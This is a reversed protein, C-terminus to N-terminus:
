VKYLQAFHDSVMGDARGASQYKEALTTKIKDKKTQITASLEEITKTLLPEELLTNARELYRLGLESELPELKLNEKKLNKKYLELEAQRATDSSYLDLLNAPLHMMEITGMAHDLTRGSTHTLDVSHDHYFESINHRAAELELCAKEGPHFNFDGAMICPVDGIDSLIKFAVKAPFRNSTSPAHVNYVIGINPFFLGIVPRLKSVADDDEYFRVDIHNKISKGPDNGAPFLSEVRYILAMNCRPNGVDTRYYWIVGLHCRSDKDSIYVHELRADKPANSPLCSQLDTRTGLNLSISINSLADGAEQLLMLDLQSHSTFNNIVSTAKATDVGSGQGQMNWSGFILSGLDSIDQDDPQDYKKRRPKKIKKSDRLIAVKKENKAASKTVRKEFTTEVPQARRNAKKYRKVLRLNPM